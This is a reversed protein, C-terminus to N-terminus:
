YTMKKQILSQGLKVTALTDTIQQGSNGAGYPNSCARSKQIFESDFLCKEIAEVVEVTSYDVDIVNNARLRGRQRSGINVTPCGFALTEKLGSSSNGICVSAVNLLGHYLHRGLSRHVQVSDVGNAAFNEIEKIIQQGGPDDNPFTIIVQCNWKEGAKKLAELSPGIQAIVQNFETAVSHQTFVLIPRERDLNFRRYITDPCAFQNTKILDLAPLGVQFIRWNEEGLRRVRETAEQNTTFHLHALKTVAHRVSDDLAGGETYDGGEIHAVPIGMQSGAIAASFAESRDGYILLFDPKFEHLVRSIGGIGSGISQATTLLDDGSSGMDVQAHIIFGDGEIEDLTKGFDRRLHAGSVILFYELSPHESIAKLVPYQLGYESRNGTFVAVSRKTRRM